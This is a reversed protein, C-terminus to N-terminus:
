GAHAPDDVDAEVLNLSAPGFRSQELQAHFQQRNPTDIDIELFRDCITDVWYALAHQSEVDTTSWRESAPMIYPGEVSRAGISRSIHSYPLLCDVSLM